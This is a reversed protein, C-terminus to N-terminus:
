RGVERQLAVIDRIIFLRGKKIVIKRKQLLEVQLSATERTTGIWSAIERHTLPLRILIGENVKEGFNDAYYLLLLVTKTYANDLVLQGARTVLGSIGAALRQTACYLVDPNKKLFVVLEEKPARVVSAETMADYHFVNPTNNIIWMLPFFSGPKFMHVMFTEGSSSLIYQYVFGLRLYYAGLPSDESRLITEGKKYIIESHSAFFGEVKELAMESLKVM